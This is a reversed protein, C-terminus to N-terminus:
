KVQAPFPAPKENEASSTMLKQSERSIRRQIASIEQRVPQNRVIEGTRGL